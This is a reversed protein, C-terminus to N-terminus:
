ACCLLVASIGFSVFGLVGMTTPKTGDKDKCCCCASICLVLGIIFFLVVLWNYGSELRLGLFSDIFEDKGERAKAIM